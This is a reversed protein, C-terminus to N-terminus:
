NEALRKEVDSVDIGLKRCFDLKRHVSYVKGKVRPSCKSIKSEPNGRIRNLYDRYEFYDMNSKSRNCNWCCSVSNEPTYGYDNFVRDVGMSKPAHCYHCNNDLLCFFQKKTLTFKMGRSKARAKYQSFKIGNKKNSM